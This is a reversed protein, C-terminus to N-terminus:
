WQGYDPALIDNLDIGVGDVTRADIEYQHLHAKPHVYGEPTGWDHQWYWSGLGALIALDLTPSNAYIGTNAKGVVSEWGALYPAIMTLFDAPTPNDDISAYIPRNEPGGAALHLELGREAHRKGAELGGRWDATSGKGFQYCSVVSLGAEQLASAEDARLPKGVMWEAGPRRDSVYRIAGAYGAASIAEASPVGGSYDILTGLSDAHAVAGSALTSTLAAVGAVASGAAAYRFLDRRSIHVTGRM